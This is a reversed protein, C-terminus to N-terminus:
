LRRATYIATVFPREVVDGFKHAAIAAIAHVLPEREGPPCTRIRIM